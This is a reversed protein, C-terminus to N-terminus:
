ISALAPDNWHLYKGTLSQPARLAVDAIVRGPVEPELMGVLLQDLTDEPLVDKAKATFGVGPHLSICILNPYEGAVTRNISNLAAKSASYAGSALTGHEAAASSIFVLKGGDKMVPLLEKLFKVVGFVNIDFVRQWDALPVDAVPGIGSFSAANFVVADIAGFTHLAEQIANYIVEDSTCDGQVVRLKLPYKEVLAKLDPTATRQITFVQAGDALLFQSVALGIGRSAGTILVTPTM